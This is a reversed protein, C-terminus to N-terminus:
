DTSSESSPPPHHRRVAAEAAELRDLGLKPPLEFYQAVANQSEALKRTARLLGAWALAYRRLAVRARMGALIVDSSLPGTPLELALVAAQVSGYAIDAAELAYGAAEMSASAAWVESRSQEVASRLEIPVTDMQTETVSQWEGETYPDSEAVQWNAYTLECLGALKADRLAPSDEIGDSRSEPRVMEMKIDSSIHPFSPGRRKGFMAAALNPAWASMLSESVGNPLSKLAPGVTASGAGQMIREVQLRAESESDCQGGIAIREGTASDVITWFWREHYHEVIEFALGLDLRPQREKGTM